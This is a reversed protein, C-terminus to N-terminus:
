NVDIYLTDNKNREQWLKYTRETTCTESPNELAFYFCYVIEKLEERSWKQRKEKKKPRTDTPTSEPPGLNSCQCNQNGNLYNRSSVSGTTWKEVGGQHGLPPGMGQYRRSPRPLITKREQTM